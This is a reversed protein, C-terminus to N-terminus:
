SRSPPYAILMTGAVYVLACAAFFMLVALYAGTAQLIVGTLIPVAIGSASGAFNMIGGVLGVKDKPALLPPLSWYLSGWYLFFLTVSLLAVAGVPDTVRPLAVFTAFIALGSFGLMGRYVAARSWGRSFLADATFGAFLSGTMGALFIVFTASGMQKLDFGRAQALYSPGWTLLGFNIMAWAMRGLMLGALSRAAIRPPVEAARQGEPVARIAALEAANVQPHMAPDDRLTRWALAGLAITGLGAALFALRWSELALILFSIIVGGFAAGLPSGSDMLVAGRAREQPSLWIANLKAGAPFLPAEAAGLGLRTLLLSLGGTAVAALSQFLGWAITAGAMLRRPGYRDILWGGPVQLLAYTWFFASLIVGQMTPSLDFERAITPMAISLATRDILNIVVLAFVVAFIRWRVRTAAASAAAAPGAITADM